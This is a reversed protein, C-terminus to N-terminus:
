APESLYDTEKQVSNQSQVITQSWFITSQVVITQSQVFNMSCHNESRHDLRRAKINQNQFNTQGHVM